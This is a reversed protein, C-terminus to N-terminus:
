SLVVTKSYWVGPAIPRPRPRDRSLLQGTYKFPGPSRGRAARRARRKVLQTTASSGYM